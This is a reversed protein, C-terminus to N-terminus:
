FAKLVGAKVNFTFKILPNVKCNFVFTTNERVGESVTIRKSDIKEINERNIYNTDGPLSIINEGYHTKLSCGTPTGTTDWMLDFAVKPPILKNFISRGNREGSLNATFIHAGERRNAVDCALTLNNNIHCVPDECDIKGVAVSTDINNDVHDNCTTSVSLGNEIRSPDYTLPDQWNGDTHCDPDFRDTYTDHDNDTGDECQSKINISFSTWGSNKTQAGRNDQALVQFTKIGVTPWIHGVTLSTGIDVYGSGPVWEEVNGSLGWDIGYHVQDGEPDGASITFINQGGPNGISPGSVSPDYPATNCAPCPITETRNDITTLSGNSRTCEAGGNAPTPNDCTRTTQVGCATSCDLSWAGWGGDVPIPAVVTVDFSAWANVQNNGLIWATYIGGTSPAPFSDTGSCGNLGTCMLVDPIGPFVRYINTWFNVTTCNPGFVNFGRNNCNSESSRSCSANIVITEGSAYVDKDSSASCSFAGAMWSVSSAQTETAGLFIVQLIIFASLFFNLITHVNKKDQPRMDPPNTTSM